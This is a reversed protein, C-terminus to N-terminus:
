LHYKASLYKSRAEFTPNFMKYFQSSNFLKPHNDEILVFQKRRTIINEVSPLSAKRLEKNSILQIAPLSEDLSAIYKLGSLFSLDKFTTNKIKLSGFIHTVRGLKIVYKEDESGINLDGLVYDCDGDLSSMNNFTCVKLIEFYEIEKCYKAHINVFFVNYKLFVEIEHITLCFDPHLNELNVLRNNEWDYQFEGNSRFSNMGLGTMKTNNRINIFAEDKLGVNKIEFRYFIGFFSLDKLDTNEIIFRGKVTRIRSLASLISSDPTSSFHLGGFLFECTKYSDLSSTFLDDGRCCENYDDDGWMYFYFLADLNALRINDRIFFGYTECFFNFEGYENDINFISLTKQESDIINIGGFLTHMQEFLKTLQIESLNGLMEPLIECNSFQNGVSQFHM